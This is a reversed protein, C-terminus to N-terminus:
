LARDLSASPFPAFSPAKGTVIREAPFRVTVTTGVGVTSQLDFSGGHMEVYYKSLPLGLGTGDFRRALTSDAQGFARLVKPIDASAIGIGTDSIRIVFGDDFRCWARVTISGGITTFKIANSLLHLLVQKFKREDVRLPPLDDAIESELVIGAGRAREKVLTLCFGIAGIIDVEKEDLDTTGSEIKSMDLIDNIICLLHQGSEVIDSAYEHYRSNGLPGFAASQIIEAFGIIANLPTRLEHSMNALFETKTRNALEAQQKAMLLAEETRKRESIDHLMVTFVMDGDLVLKSISAEAPFESGDKRRGSIELRQDFALQFTPSRAFNEFHDQHTKRAGAPLLVDLPQGIVESATYAFIAEAGQNFLRVRQDGGVSVIAEPAIDVIGALRAESARLADEALKRETIDAGIAGIAAIRGEADQIPFKTMMFTHVRGELVWEEEQEITRGTELVELDHARVADAQENPLLEHTTRGKADEDTVGFLKEALSNLLLYRGDRDKIYIKAPARNVVTRFRSETDRLDAASKEKLEDHASRLATQTLKVKTLLAVTVWIAFLALCRNTLVVWPIGGEPSWLYGAATLLSSVMGLFFINAATEFWWGLLIVAVYPVGGAVGLPLSLDLLLIAFALTAVMAPTLFRWERQGTM